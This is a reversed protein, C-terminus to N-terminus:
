ICRWVSDEIATLLAADDDLQDNRQSNQGRSSAKM